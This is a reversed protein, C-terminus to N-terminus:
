QPSKKKITGSAAKVTKGGTTSGQAPQSSSSQPSTPSAPNSPAAADTPTVTVSLDPVAAPAPTPALALAASNPAPSSPPTRNSPQNVDLAPLATDRRMATSLHGWVSDLLGETTSSFVAEVPKTPVELGDSSSQAQSGVSTTDVDLSRISLQSKPSSRGSSVSDPSRKGPEQEDGSYSIVDNDPGASGKQSGKSDVCKNKPNLKEQASKSRRKVGDPDKSMEQPAEQGTHSPPTVQSSNLAQKENAGSTISIESKNNFRGSDTAAKSSSFTSGFTNEPKPSSYFASAIPHSKPVPANKFLCSLIVSPKEGTFYKIAIIFSIIFVIIGPLIIIVVNANSLTYVGIDDIIFEEETDEVKNTCFPPAWGPLCNICSGTSENCMIDTACNVCKLPCDSIKWEAPCESVVLELTAGITTGAKNTATCLYVGTDWLRLREITLSPMTLDGGKRLYQNIVSVNFVKEDKHWTINQLPTTSNVECELTVEQGVVKKFFSVNPTQIIPPELVMMDM